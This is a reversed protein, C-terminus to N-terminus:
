LHFLSSSTHYRIYSHSLQIIISLRLVSILNGIPYLGPSAEGGIDGYTRVDFSPSTRDLSYMVLHSRRNTIVSISYDLFHFSTIFVTIVPTTIFPLIFSSFLPSHLFLLDSLCLWIWIETCPDIGYIVFLYIFLLHARCSQLLSTFNSPLIFSYKTINPCPYLFLPYPM